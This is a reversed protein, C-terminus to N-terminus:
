ASFFPVPLKIEEKTAIPIPRIIPRIIRRMDLGRSAKAPNKVM